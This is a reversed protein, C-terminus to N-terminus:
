NEICQVVPCECDLCMGMVHRHLHTEVTTISQRKSPPVWDMEEPEDDWPFEDPKLDVPAQPESVEVAPAAHRYEDIQTNM